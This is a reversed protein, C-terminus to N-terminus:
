SRQAYGPRPVQGMLVQSLGGDIIIEQGTIYNARSSCLFLVANATDVPDGIRGVPVMSERAALTENDAYFAASLPTRVLGPSVVNSRVGRAGWEYALQRSLMVVGAKGPSYAGSFPQPQSASISAVHVIAGGGRALMQAGFARAGLFCGTLNVAIMAEWDTLSLTELAGPRLIGAANVLIDAGGLTQAVYTAAENVSAENSMDCFQVTAGPIPDASRDLAVVQAGAGHLAACTARGIGGGAGTVVAVKNALGLWDTSGSM